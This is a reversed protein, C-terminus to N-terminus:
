KKVRHFVLSQEFTKGSRDFVLNMRVDTQDDWDWFYASADDYADLGSPYAGYGRPRVYGPQDAAGVMGNVAVGYSPEPEVLHPRYPPLIEKIFSDGAIARDRLPHSQGSPDVVSSKSGLLEITDGTPNFILMILRGESARLRYELPDIALRNESDTSIRRNQTPPQLIDFEYTACGGCALLLGGIALWRIHM